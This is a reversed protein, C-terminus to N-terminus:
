DLLDIGASIAFRELDAPAYNASYSRLMCRGERDQFVVTAIPSSDIALYEIGMGAVM